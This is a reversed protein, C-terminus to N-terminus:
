ERLVNRWVSLTYHALAEASHQPGLLKIVVHHFLPEIAIRAIRRRRRLAAVAAIMLPRM